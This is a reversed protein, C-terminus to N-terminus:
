RVPADACLKHRELLFQGFCSGNDHVATIYTCKNKRVLLALDIEGGACVCSSKASVFLKEFFCVAIGGFYSGKLINLLINVLTIVPIHVPFIRGEHLSVIRM